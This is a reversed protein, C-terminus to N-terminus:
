ACLVYLQLCLRLAVRVRLVIARIAVLLLPCDANIAYLTIVALVVDGTVWVDESARNVWRETGM